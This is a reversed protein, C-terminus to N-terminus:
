GADLVERVKRLLTEPTFPKGLFAVGEDLLGQRVVADDTYGSIMLVKIGPRAAAIHDAVTRGTMGPMILDTLLLQIPDPHGDVIQLAEAGDRAVLVQHGNRELTEQLVERLLEDDEVLLVTETGPPPAPLEERTLTDRAEDVRPLYIKFTSGFGPESYVWIYGGSQKVIGYVTSLGLGTGKGLEKTTFFPEFIRTRTEADMGGGTDTVSVLVFPGSEVVTHLAVYAADLEVNRTEITLRGGQPMADRANVALNMLVQELQGPDAKVSGIRPDLTTVLEVDEGILRRLMKEMDSVVINLDLVKPQLVQSRSFALLQRTLAAARDSARLIQELKARLPDEAPLRRLVMEGYGSIVGLVNNFDHAVGGALRGIAEMKQAQLFQQHLRAEETVDRKVAVFNVLRGSADHVPSITAEEEFFSGDKRRNVLHGAWAEGATLAAWMRVYVSPDQVGSKLIRPNQGLAEERAYGTVREFAPNVYVITGEPDTIVISEAAQEVARFLRAHEEESRRRDTVDIHCGVMRCARGAADRFVDARALIARYSGDKHRLRFTMEYEARPMLLDAQLAALATERDEPHLRSAWEELNYSVEDDEYGLQAKSGPSFYVEGRLVDWDWLGVAAAKLALELRERTKRTEAEVREGESADEILGEYFAIAGSADHRVRTTERAPFCSGDARRLRTAFDRVVGEAELLARWRERDDPNEYLTSAKIGLLLERSAYRFKHVFEANVALIRGEPTTRYLAIPLGEWIELAESGLRREM